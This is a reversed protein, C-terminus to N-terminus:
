ICFTLPCFLDAMAALIDLIPCRFDLNVPTTVRIRPSLVIFAALPWIRQLSHPAM